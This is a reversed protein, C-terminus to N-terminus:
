YPPASSAARSTQSARPRTVETVLWRGARQEIVLRLREVATGSRRHVEADVSVVRRAATAEVGAVVFDAVIGDTVPNFAVTAVKALAAKDYTRSAEFFRRVVQEELTAVGCGAAVCAAAVAAWSSRLFTRRTPRPCRRSM